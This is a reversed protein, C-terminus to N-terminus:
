WQLGGYGVRDMSGAGLSILHNDSTVPQTLSKASVPAHCAWRRTAVKSAEPSFRGLAALSGCFLRVVDLFEGKIEVVQRALRGVLWRQWGARPAVSFSFRVIPANCRKCDSRAAGM